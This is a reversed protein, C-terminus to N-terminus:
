GNSGQERDRLHAALLAPISSGGDVPFWCLDDVRMFIAGPDAAQYRYFVMREETAQLTGRTGRGSLAPIFSPAIAIEGGRVAFYKWIGKGTM